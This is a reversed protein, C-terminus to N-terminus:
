VHFANLKVCLASILASIARLLDLSVGKKNTDSILLWNQM